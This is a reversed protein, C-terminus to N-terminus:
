GFGEEARGPTGGMIRSSGMPNIFKGEPTYFFDPYEILGPMNFTPTKPLDRDIMRRIQQATDTM